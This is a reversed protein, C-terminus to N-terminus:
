VTVSYVVGVGSCAVHGPTIPRCLIFQITNKTSMPNWKAKANQDWQDKAKKTQKNQQM